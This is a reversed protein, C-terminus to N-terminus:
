SSPPVWCSPSWRAFPLGRVIALDRPRGPSVRLRPEPSQCIDAADKALYAPRYRPTFHPCHSGAGQYRDERTSYLRSEQRIRSPGDNM